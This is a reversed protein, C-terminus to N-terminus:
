GGFGAMFAASEREDSWGMPAADRPNGSAMVAPGPAFVEADLVTLEIDKQVLSRRWAYAATLMRGIPATLPDLGVGVSWAEFAFWNSWASVALHHAAWFDMGLVSSLVELALNELDDLDFPDAFRRPDDPDRTPDTMREVLWQADDPNLHVPFLHWWCGPPQLVLADLWTRTDLEPFVLETGDVLFPLPCRATPGVRVRSPDPM